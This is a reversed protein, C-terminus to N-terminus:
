MKQNFFLAIVASSRSCPLAQSTGAEEAARHAFGDAGRGAPRKRRRHPQPSRARGLRDLHDPEHRLAPYPRHEEPDAPVPGLGVYDLQGVPQAGGPDLHVAEATAQTPQLPGVPGAMPQGPRQASPPEVRDVEVDLHPPRRAPLIIADSEPEELLVQGQQPSNALGAQRELDVDRRPEGAIQRPVM